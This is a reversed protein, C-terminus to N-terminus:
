GVDYAAFDCVPRYGIRRYLANSTPDALDTFLLVEAAGSELAARSVVATVAGAHGRGRLGAPTCVGIVRTQGAVEPTRAAMSVPTGGPTEWLM